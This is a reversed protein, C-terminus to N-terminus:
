RASNKLLGYYFIDVVNYYCLQLTTVLVVSRYGWRASQWLGRLDDGESHGPELYHVVQVAQGDCTAQLMGSAVTASAKSISTNGGSRFQGDGLNLKGQHNALLSDAFKQFV